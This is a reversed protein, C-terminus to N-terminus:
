VHRVVEEGAACDECVTREGHQTEIVVDATERCGLAGCYPGEETSLVSM